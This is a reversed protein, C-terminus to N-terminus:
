KIVIPSLITKAKWYKCGKPPNIKTIKSKINKLQFGAEQLKKLHVRGFKKVEDSYYTFVGGKRLKKYAFPFFNFHNQYLEAEALPYTDFLIGDISNDPIKKIADEWLGTVVEVKHKAGKGFKRAEDAVMKNAEIIIHKRVNYKQIYRSSIGMGYGLELVTGGKSAVIEALDKMYPDEWDEMVPEGLIKLDHKSFFAKADKWDSKKYGLYTKDSKKYEKEWIPLQSLFDKTKKFKPNRKEM